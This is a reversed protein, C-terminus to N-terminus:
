TGGCTSLHRAGTPVALARFPQGQTDALASTDVRGTVASAYRSSASTVANALKLQHDNLSVMVFCYPAALTQDEEMHRVGNFEQGHRWDDM